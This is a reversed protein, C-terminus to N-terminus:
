IEFFDICLSLACEDKSPEVIKAVEELAQTLRERVLSVDAESITIVSSYHFSEDRKEISRMAQMRWNAHHKPLMPSDKGLHTRNSSPLYRDGKAVVLGMKELESLLEAVRKLSLGLHASLAEKTQLKPIGLMTFIAVYVWNSYFLMQNQHSVEDVKFRKKLDAREKQQREIQAKIKDKLTKTGARGFIVLLLFYESEESTHGLFQSVADAQELSLDAKGGLVQTVYGPRCNMAEALRSQAGRQTKTREHLIKKLYSKYETFEFVQAM